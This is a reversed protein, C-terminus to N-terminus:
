QHPHSSMVNGVLRQGSGAAVTKQSQSWLRIYDGLKVVGAADWFAWCNVCTAARPKARVRLGGIARCQPCPGHPRWAPEAWGTVSRAWARWAHADSVLEALSPADLRSAFGVLGRLSEELRHRAPRGMRRLWARCQRDIVQYRDIAELCTPASSEYVPRGAGALGGDKETMRLQAVLPPFRTYSAQDGPKRIRRPYALEDVCAKLRDMLVHRDLPESM